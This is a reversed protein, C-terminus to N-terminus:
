SRKRPPFLKSIVRGGGKLIVKAGVEKSLKVTEGSLLSSAFIPFETNQFLFFQGFCLTCAFYDLDLNDLNIYTSTM